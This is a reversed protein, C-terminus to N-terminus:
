SAIANREIIRAKADNGAIDWDWMYRLGYQRAAGSTNTVTVTHRVNTDSLTSGNIVVDQVVTWNPFTWTTRYGTTGLNTVVATGATNMNTYTYGALGSVAGEANGYIVSATADRLSIYSTGVPYLVLQNPNPHSAGTTVTFMGLASTSSDEISLSLFGNTASRTAFPAAPDRAPLKSQALLATSFSFLVLSAFLGATWHKTFRM